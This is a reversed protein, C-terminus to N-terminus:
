WRRKFLVLQRKHNKFWLNYACRWKGMRAAHVTWKMNLKAVRMVKATCSLKHLEENHLKRWGGTLEATNPGRDETVEVETRTM